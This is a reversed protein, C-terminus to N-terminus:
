ITKNKVEDLICKVKAVIEEFTACNEVRQEGTTPGNEFVLRAYWYTKNTFSNKSYNISVSKLSDKLFPDTILSLQNNEGKEESLNLEPFM